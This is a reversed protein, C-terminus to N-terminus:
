GAVGVGVLANKGADPARSTGDECTGGGIVGGVPVGIGAVRAM